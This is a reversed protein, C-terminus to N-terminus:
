VALIPRYSRVFSPTGNLVWQEHQVWSHAAFPRPKVGIVWQPHLGYCSLFEVLALSDLLCRGRRTFFITRLHTFASLHRRAAQSNFPRHIRARRRAECRRVAAHLSRCRLMFLAVTVARIFSILHGLTTRFHAMEEWAILEDACPPIDPPLVEKGRPAECLLGRQCLLTAFNQAGPPMPPDTSADPRRPWGEVVASLADSQQADLGLYADAKLDLFVSGGPTVCVHTGDALRYPRM